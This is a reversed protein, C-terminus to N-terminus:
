PRFGVVPETWSCVLTPVGALWKGVGPTPAPRRRAGEASRTTAKEAGEPAVDVVVDVM